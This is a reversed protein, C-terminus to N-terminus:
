KAVRVENRFDATTQAAKEIAVGKGGVAPLAFGITSYDAWVCMAQRETQGTQQNQGEIEQCRMTANFNDPEVTQAEGVLKMGEQPNQKLNTFVDDLAKEPDAVEGFIGGFTVAKTKALEAPDELNPPKTADINMFIAGVSKADKIGSTALVNKDDESADKAPTAPGMRNYDGLVTDPLTLTHPGDDEIGGGSGATLFYAGGGLVAVVAVAAVVILGTKKKGGQPPQPPVQGYPAAPGGPQQPVQGYPGPQQGYPGPQQGQQPYGYGPQQPAGGQQPYGYGPQGGPPPGQPPQQGYPGPQQPQGGYPGPQNYSM